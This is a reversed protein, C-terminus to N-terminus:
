KSKRSLGQRIKKESARKKLAERKDHLKKGQVLALEVKALGSKFYIKLPVLTLGKERVVGYLRDLQKRSLLLKRLREPNMDDIRTHKYESIHLNRIFAEGSRFDVYADKMQVNRDRLSKVEWGQLVIGAELAELIHYDFRVKKNEAILLVGAM